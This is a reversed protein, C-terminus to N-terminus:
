NELCAGNGNGGGRKGKRSASRETKTRGAQGGNLRKEMGTGAGL